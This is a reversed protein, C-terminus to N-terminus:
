VVLLFQGIWTVWRWCNSQGTPKGNKPGFEAIAWSADGNRVL